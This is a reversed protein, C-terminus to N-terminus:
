ARHARRVKKIATTIDQPRLKAQKAWAQSEAMLAAFASLRPPEIPRLLVNTGDTIVALKSGTKLGLEARIANPIVVQGKTSISTVEMIRM